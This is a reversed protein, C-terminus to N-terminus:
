DHAAGETAPLAQLERKLRAHDHHATFALLVRLVNRDIGLSAVPEHQSLLFARAEKTRALELRASANESEASWRRVQEQADFLATLDNAM